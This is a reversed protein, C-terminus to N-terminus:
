AVLLVLLVLLEVLLVVALGAARLAGAVVLVPRRRALATRMM